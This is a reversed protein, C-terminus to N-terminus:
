PIMGWGPDSDATQEAVELERQNSQEVREELDDVSREIQTATEMLTAIREETMPYGSDLTEHICRYIETLQGDTFQRSGQVLGSRCAFDLRASDYDSYYHGQTVGTRDATRWWTTFEYGLGGDMERGALVLGSFEALLRFNQRLGEAELRPAAAIATTYERVQSSIGAVRDYLKVCEPDDASPPDLFITGASSIWLAAQGDLLVPLRDNEAQGTTIDEQRLRRTLEPFFRDNM